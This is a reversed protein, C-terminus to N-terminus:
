GTERLVSALVEPLTLIVEYRLLKQLFSDDTRYNEHVNQRSVIRLFCRFADDRSGLPGSFLSFNFTSFGIAEYGALVRCLGEALGQLDEDDLELFNRRECLVGLVENMGQPSYSTILSLPGFEGVYRKGIAREEDVLDLWYCSGQQERYQRSKELAVQLSTFPLDGGTVQFHPHVFGAGAPGLYNGSVALVDVGSATEALRRAFALSAQLAELVRVPEFEKLPLYHREGVRIVAHVPAVPFLNPFLVAQGIEIRGGPLLDVPYTPTMQRWRDGCLFCMPESDAALKAILAKNSPPFIAAIKDELGPNFVSQAGTLPDLRIELEQADLANGKIPNHFVSKRRHSQFRIRGSM